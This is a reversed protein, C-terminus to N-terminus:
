RSSFPLLDHGYRLYVLICQRIHLKFALVIFTQLGEVKEDAHQIADEHKYAM